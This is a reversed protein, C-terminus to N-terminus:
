GDLGVKAQVVALQKLPTGLIDGRRGNESTMELNEFWFFFM